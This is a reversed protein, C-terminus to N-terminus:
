EGPDGELRAIFAAVAQTAHRNQNQLLHLPRCLTFAEVDLATLRRDALENCVTHESAITFGAGAIVAQKVAETSGLAMAPKLELGHAALANEVVARTGSGAERMVCPTATLEALTLARGAALAHTPAAVAILHDNMFARVSFRARDAFGETLGIDIRRAALDQQIIQTNAIALEIDVRPYDRHYAALMPPLVYDGITTSAGIRLRGSRLDRLDDLAVRAEKELEFLREAYDALVRGAETPEAGRAGRDLLVRDLQQELAGVHRSVVSQSLYLAQAAASFSGLRAVASFVRLQRHNMVQLFCM